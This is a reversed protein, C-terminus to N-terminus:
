NVMEALDYSSTGLQDVRCSLPARDPRWRLFTAQHRFQQGVLQDYQVEAVLEPRLWTMAGTLDREASPLEYPARGGPVEIALDALLEAFSTRQEPSLSNVMGVYQLDDNRDAYLGLLLQGVGRFRPSRRMGIVVAEASKSQKVKLWSRRGFEYVGDIQKAIVGDLGFGGFSAFWRQALDADTTSATLRIGSEAGVGAFVQELRDRRVRFPQGSLDEDGLALLDFCVFKAPSQRALTAARRMSPQVRQSLADWDLTQCGEPGTPLIIEGDVVCRDPLHQRVRDVIEPFYPTLSKSMRSTLEVQDGDKLIICRFGDWKPEFAYGDGSPPLLDVRRSLMPAVPVDIPLQM